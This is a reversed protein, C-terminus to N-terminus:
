KTIKIWDTLRECSGNPNVKGYFVHKGGQRETPSYTVPPGIGKFDKL